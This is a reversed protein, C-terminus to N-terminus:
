EVPVCDHRGPGLDSRLFIHAGPTDDPFSCYKLSLVRVDVGSEHATMPADEHPAPSILTAARTTSNSDGDNMIVDTNESADHAIKRRKAADRSEVAKTALNALRLTRKERSTSM